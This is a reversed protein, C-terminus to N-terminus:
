LGLANKFDSSNVYSIGNITAERCDFFIIQNDLEVSLQYINQIQVSSPFYTTTFYMDVGHLTIGNPITQIDLIM